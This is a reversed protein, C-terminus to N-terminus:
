ARVQWDFKPDTAQYLTEEHKRVHSQEWIHQHFWVAYREEFKWTSQQSDRFTLWPTTSSSLYLYSVSMLNWGLLIRKAVIRKRPLHGHGRHKTLFSCIPAKPVFISSWRRFCSRVSVSCRCDLTSWDRFHIKSSPFPIFLVHTFLRRWSPEHIGFWTLRLASNTNNM